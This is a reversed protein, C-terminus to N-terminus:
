NKKLKQNKPASRLLKELEQHGGIDADEIDANDVDAGKKILVEVVDLNYTTIAWHIPTHGEKDVKNMDAGPAAILAQVVDLHGRASAWHLPTMGRADAKNVSAGKNIISKVEVLDGEASAELLLLAIM